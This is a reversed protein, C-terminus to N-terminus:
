IYGSEPNSSSAFGLVIFGICFMVSVADFVMPLVEIPFGFMTSAASGEVLGFSAPLTTTIMVKFTLWLFIVVFIMALSFIWMLVSGQNNHRLNRM